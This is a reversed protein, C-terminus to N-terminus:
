STEIYPTERKAPLVLLCRGLRYYAIAVPLLSIPAIMCRHFNLSERNILETDM